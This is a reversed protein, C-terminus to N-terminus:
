ELKFRLGHTYFYWCELPSFAVEVTNDITRTPLQVKQTEELGIGVIMKETDLMSIIVDGNINDYKYDFGRKLLEATEM